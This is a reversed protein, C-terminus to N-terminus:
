LVGKDTPSIQVPQRLNGPDGTPLWIEHHVKSTIIIHRRPIPERWQTLPM